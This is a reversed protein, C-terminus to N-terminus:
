GIILNNKVTAAKSARVPAAAACTGSKDAKSGSPSPLADPRMMWIIMKSVTSDKAGPMKIMTV